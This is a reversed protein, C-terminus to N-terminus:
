ADRRGGFVDNIMQRGRLARIETRLSDILLEREITLRSRQEDRASLARAQLVNLAVSAFLMAGVVLLIVYTAIM